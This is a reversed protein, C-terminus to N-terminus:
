PCRLGDFVKQANFTVVAPLGTGDALILSTIIARAGRSNNLYVVDFNATRVLSGSEYVRVSLTGTCDSKVTGSGELTLYSVTGGLSSTATGVLNGNSDLTYSAVAAFPAAGTAPIVTGTETFAWDGAVSANSCTRDDMSHAAINPATQAQLINTSGIWLVCAAALVTAKSHTRNFGIMSNNMVEERQPRDAM